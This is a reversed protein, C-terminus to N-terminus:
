FIKPQQKKPNKIEYIEIAEKLQEINKFTMRLRQNTTFDEVNAIIKEGDKEITYVLHTIGKANFYKGYFQEKFKQEAKDKESLEKEKKAAIQKRNDINEPTFTFEIGTVKNGKGKTKTKKYSLNKFPTRKQDFLSRETSLEAVAPKLIQKEIDRTAYSKPIDLIEKFKEFEIKFIGTSRYQKLLRYITKTYKGNLNVFEALEFRTFNNMLGNFIYAFAQSVRVSLFERKKDIHVRPFITEQATGEDDDYRIKLNQLKDFQSFITTELYEKNTTSIGSLEIIKDIPFKLIDTSQNEVKAFLTFLINIQNETLGSLTINNLDNHYKVVENM